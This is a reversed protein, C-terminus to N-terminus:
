WMLMWWLLYEQHKSALLGMEALDVAWIKKAVPKHLEQPLEENVSAGSGTKKNYFKYVM